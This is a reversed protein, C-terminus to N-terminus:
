SMAGRLLSVGSHTPNGDWREASVDVTPYARLPLGAPVPFAGQYGGDATPTLVGLSVLRTGTPDMLWAELHDGGAVDTVGRVRIVLERSDSGSTEDVTGTASPDAAAVPRLQALPVGAAAPESPGSGLGIGIGIGVAVGFAAAAVPVMISWRRRRPGAGVPAPSGVAVDSALAAPPDSDARMGPEDLEDVIAQWVRAPPTAADAHGSRALEVTRRLGDVHDRCQACGNLHEALQADRPEAPLAALALWEPDPHPDSM